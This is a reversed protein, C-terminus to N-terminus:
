IAFHEMEPSFVKMSNHSSLFVENPLHALVSQALADILAKKLHSEHYILGIKRTPIPKNFHRINKKQLQNHQTALVPLLTYGGVSDVLGILTSLGGSQLAIQSRDNQGEKVRCIQNVQDRMCHTDDLLLAGQRSLTSYDVNKEKLLPHKESAYVVFPEYYLPKEKLSPPAKSPTSLLAADLDGQHIMQVLTNTKDEVIKLQVDPFNKTFHEAFLPLLFPAVTPIIGLRLEGRIEKKWNSSIDLIRKSEDVIVRAQKLIEKGFDTIAIPSRSRDFISGGIEDELKQIQVSLSPQTVHCIEAAGSFSRTKEVALIYELQTLTM